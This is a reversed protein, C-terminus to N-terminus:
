RAPCRPTRLPTAGRVHAATLGGNRFKSTAREAAALMADLMGSLEDVTEGKMRLAVIFGAIQASTAAGELVEAMADRAREAPLDRGATLDALVSPWGEFAM